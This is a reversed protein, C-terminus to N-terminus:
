LPAPPAGGHPNTTSWDLRVTKGISFGGTSGFGASGRETERLKEVVVVPPNYICEIVLQAIRDGESVAFDEDTHNFLIV